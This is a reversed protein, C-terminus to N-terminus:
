SLSAASFIFSMILKMCMPGPEIKLVTDKDTKSENCCMSDINDANNKIAM